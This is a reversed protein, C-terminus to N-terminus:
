YCLSVIQEMIDAHNVIDFAKFVVFIGIVHEDNELCTMLRDMITMIDM